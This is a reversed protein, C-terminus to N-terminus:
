AVLVSETKVVEPEETVEEKKKGVSRTLLHRLRGLIQNLFNGRSLFRLVPPRRYGLQRHLANLGPHDPDVKLGECVAHIAESKYRESLLCTRALNYYNEPQFWEVKVGYLCYKRGKEVQRQTHALGYGLYSYCLGPLQKAQKGRVLWALDVLGRQWDGRQCLEIGRECVTALHEQQAKRDIELPVGTVKSVEKM